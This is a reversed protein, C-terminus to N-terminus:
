IIKYAAKQDRPFYTLIHYHSVQITAISMAAVVVLTWVIRRVKNAHGFINSIGPMSIKGVLPEDAAMKGLPGALSTFDMVRVVDGPMPTGLRSAEGADDGLQVRIVSRKSGNVEPGVDALALAVNGSSVVAMGADHEEDEEM